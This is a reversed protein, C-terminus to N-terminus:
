DLVALQEKSFTKLSTADDRIRRAWDPNALLARGVAILDFEDADMRKLLEGIDAVEAKGERYTAIFEENLSVSGVSITPKGTIKKTWGALNLTSGPFEPEWFRRTSCHFIDVGADSIPQLMIQLEEPNLTLRTDFDQQTWQSFRFIIPFAEGVQQRIARVLDAAFRSRKSLSGGYEDSRQNTGEWLFSNILYGHAGHIELSDFGLDRANKGAQAFASIIEEIEETSLPELVKKGPALLGSPSASPYDPFPGQGPKRIPGVHWLQPAIKGGEAHVAEVVKAWGALAAESHFNPIATDSSAAKHNVTTGETIILGVEGAARKRYYEAVNAGPVGDPSFHRTMPAMVIRNKLTLKPHSFSKFLSDTNMFDIGILTTSLHNFDTLQRNYAADAQADL